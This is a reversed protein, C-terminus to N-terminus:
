NLEKNKNIFNRMATRVRRNENEVEDAAEEILSAFLKLTTTYFEPSNGAKFFKKFEKKTAEKDVNDHRLQGLADIFNKLENEM